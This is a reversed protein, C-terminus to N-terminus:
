FFLYVVKLLIIGLCHVTSTQNIGVGMASPYIAEAGSQHSSFYPLPSITSYFIPNIEAMVLMRLVNMYIFEYCFRVLAKDRGYSTLFMEKWVEERRIKGEVAEAVEETDDDEGDDGVVEDM